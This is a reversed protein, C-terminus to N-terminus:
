LQLMILIQIVMRLFQANLSRCVITCELEPMSDNFSNLSLSVTDWLCALGLGYVETGHYRFELLKTKDDDIIDKIYPSKSAYLMFLRVSDEKSHEQVWKGITYGRCLERSCFDCTTRIIGSFGSDTMKKSLRILQRMGEDTKEPSDYSGDASLENFIQDM